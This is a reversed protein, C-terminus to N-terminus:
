YQYLHPFFLKFIALIIFFTIPNLPLIFFSKDLGSPTFLFFSLKFSILFNPQFGFTDKSFPTSSVM